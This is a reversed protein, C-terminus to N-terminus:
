PSRLLTVIQFSRLLVEKLPYQSPLEVVIRTKCERIRAGIKLLRLQITKITATAFESQQLLNTKLTHLLVYAASHLFLRFHNAEFEHCSTRDSKLYLKHDKIYLEAEGRACYFETYIASATGGRFETVVFRLNVGKATVEVKAIVRRPRSWTEAQYLFAHFLTVDKESRAYRRQAREVVPQIAEELRSNGTLGTLYHVDQQAEIWDMVEPYAFHSDGRFVIVTKPWAARLHGILRKVIALMQPGTCRKGPKLITTILKGSQGEYVHLPLYCQEKYYGNFLALQQSGHVPDDTDDFDLIICEPEEAYSAIFQDAFMRALRYLTTRSISNEFRSMTPQSALAEDLEPYRGALMKLIPDDRLTTCDNADEYGCAIQAVRQIVLDSMSHTVYRVDRSDPIIRAMERLLGIHEEVERLLLAGADSSLRGGNFNLIVSKNQVELTTVQSPLQQLLGVNRAPLTPPTVHLSSIHM